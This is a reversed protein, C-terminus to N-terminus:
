FMDPSVVIDDEGKICGMYVIPSVVTGAQPVIVRSENSCLLRTLKRTESKEGGCIIVTPHNVELFLSGNSAVNWTFISTIDTTFLKGERNVVLLETDNERCNVLQEKIPGGTAVYRSLDPRRVAPQIPICVISDTGSFKCYNELDFEM